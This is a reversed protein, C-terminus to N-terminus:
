ALLRVPDAPLNGALIPELLDPLGEPFIVEDTARLAPLSWWRHEPYVSREHEFQNATSIPADAVRVLFYWERGHIPEGFLVIAKERVWICPGIEADAIGTEEWLERRAAAEITEGAELGGGPTVWYRRLGPHTPDVTNEAQEVTLFLLIEDRDNLLVVRAGQRTRVPPMDDIM